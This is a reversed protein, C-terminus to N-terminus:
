HLDPLERPGKFPLRVQLWVVEGMVAEAAGALNRAILGGDREAHNILPPGLKVVALITLPRDNLAFSGKTGNDLEKTIAHFQGDPDYGKIFYRTSRIREVPGSIQTKVRNVGRSEYGWSVDMSLTGGHSPSTATARGDAPPEPPPIAGDSPDHVRKEEQDTQVGLLSPQAPAHGGGLVLALGILVLGKM